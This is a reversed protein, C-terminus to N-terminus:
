GLLVRRHFAHIALARDALRAATGYPTFAELVKTAPRAVGQLAAETLNKFDGVWGELLSPLLHLLVLRTLGRKKLSLVHRPM